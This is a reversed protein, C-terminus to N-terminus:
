VEELTLSWGVEAGWENDQGQWSVVRMTLRPRYFTYDGEVRTSGPVATRIPNNDTTKYSLEFICDVTVQQGPYPLFPMQQDQGTITTTFKRFLTDSVDALAGNVTRILQTAAQIIQYSQQAQRTSYPPFEAGTITLLETRPPLSM